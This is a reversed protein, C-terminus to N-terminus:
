NLISGKGMTPFLFEVNSKRSKWDYMFKLFFALAIRKFVMSSLTQFYEELFNHMRLCIATKVAPEFVIKGEQTHLNITKNLLSVLEVEVMVPEPM